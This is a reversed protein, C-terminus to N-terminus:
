NIFKWSVGFRIGRDHLPYYPVNYYNVPLLGSTVNEIMLFLRARKIRAGIFVNPYIFNGTKIEDQLYFDMLAPMYAYPYFETNYYFELGIFGKLSHNFMDQEFGFRQNIYFDPVSIYENNKNCHQFVANTYFYFKGLNFEGEYNLKNLLFGEEAQKPLIDQALYVYDNVYYASFSLKGISTNIFLETATTKEKNFDNDWKFNNSNYFKYMSMVDSKRFSLAAGINKIFKNKFNYQLISKANFDSNNYDGFYMNGDFFLVTNKFLVFKSGTSAISRVLSNNKKLSQYFDTYDIGYSIYYRIKKKNTESLSSYNSLTLKNSINRVNTSDFIRLSDIYFSPYYDINPQEDEFLAYHNHFSAYHTIYLPFSTTDDFLRVNHKFNLYNNKIRNEADILNVYTLQRDYIVTDEFLSMNTIGGNENRFMKNNIFYAIFNYKGSKSNHLLYANFNTNNAKQFRYLGPVSKVNYQLGISYATDIKQTHIIQFIQERNPGSSFFARSVSVDTNFVNIDTPKLLLDNYALNRNFYNEDNYNLFSFSKNFSAPNGDNFVSSSEPCLEYWFFYLKKNLEFNIDDNFIYFKINRYNINLSDNNEHNHPFVSQYYM